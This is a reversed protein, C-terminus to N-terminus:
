GGPVISEDPKACFPLAALAGIMGRGDMLVEAGVDGAAQIADEVTIRETRCRKAYAILPSPDFAKWAVLGTEESITYRELLAQFDRMLGCSGGPLAAFEVVTSVCNQTKHPVPFLQVLSHSVYRAEKRDLAAAINHVLSWTAGETKSDTDDVGIILRERRPVVITGRAVRGGGSESLDYRLVDGARARSLTAGVGGGGLGVYTISVEDGDVGVAEIGASRQSSVLGLDSKGPRLMYRFWEGLNRSSIILPGKSYHYRAWASGGYCTSRELLEVRDEGVLAHIQRYAVVYPDELQHEVFDV